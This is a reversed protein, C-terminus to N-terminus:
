HCIGKIIHKDFCNNKSFTITSHTLNKWFFFVSSAKLLIDAFYEVKQKTPTQTQTQPHKPSKEKKGKM